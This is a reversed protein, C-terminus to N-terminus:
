RDLMISLPLNQVEDVGINNGLDPCCKALDVWSGIHRLLM